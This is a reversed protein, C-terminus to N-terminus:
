VKIAAYAFINYFENQLAARVHYIYRLRRKTVNSRMVIYCNYITKELNHFIEYKKVVNGCVSTVSTIEQFVLYYLSIFFCSILLTKNFFRNHFRDLFNVLYWRHLPERKSSSASCSLNSWINMVSNKRQKWQM